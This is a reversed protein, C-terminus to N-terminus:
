ATFSSSRKTSATRRAASTAAVPFSTSKPIVGIAGMGAVPVDFASWRDSRRLVRGIGDRFETFFRVGLGGRNIERFAIVKPVAADEDEM